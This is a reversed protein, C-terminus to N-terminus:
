AASLRALSQNVSAILNEIAAQEAQASRAAEAASSGAQSYIDAERGVLAGATGYLTGETGYLAGQRGILTGASSYAEGGARLAGVGQTQEFQLAAEGMAVAQQDIWNEWDVRSSSDSIGARALYDRAKQKSAKTWLDIKAQSAAPITGAEAAALRGRGYAALPDAVGTRTSAALPDIQAALASFKPALGTIADEIPQMRPAVAMGKRVAELQTKSLRDVNEQIQGARENAQYSAVGGLVGAGVGLLPNVERAFEGVGRIGSRVAGAVGRVAGAVEGAVRGFGGGSPDGPGANGPDSVYEAPLGMDNGYEIPGTNGLGPDYDYGGPEIFSEFDGGGTFDFDDM